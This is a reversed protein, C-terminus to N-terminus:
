PHASEPLKVQRPAVSADFGPVRAGAPWIVALTDGGFLDPAHLSRSCVVPGHHLEVSVSDELTDLLVRVAANV